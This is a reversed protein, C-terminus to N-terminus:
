AAAGGAARWKAIRRIPERARRNGLGGRRGGGAVCEKRGDGGWGVAVKGCVVPRLPQIHPGIMELLRGRLTIAQSATVALRIRGPSNTFLAIKRRKPM